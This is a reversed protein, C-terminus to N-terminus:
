STQSIRMNQRDQNDEEIISNLAPSPHSLKSARSEVSKLFEQRISTLMEKAAEDGSIAYAQTIGELEKRQPAIESEACLQLYHQVHKIIIIIHQAMFHQNEPSMVYLYNVMKHVTPDKDYTRKKEKSRYLALIKDTGLSKFNQLLEKAKFENEALIIVGQSIVNLIEDPMGLTLNIATSVSKDQDYWRKPPPTTM